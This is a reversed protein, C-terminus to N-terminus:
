AAGPFLGGNTVINIFLGFRFARKSHRFARSGGRGRGGPRDRQRRRLRVFEGFVPFYFKFGLHPGCFVASLCSATVEVIVAKEAM